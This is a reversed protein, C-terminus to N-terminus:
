LFFTTLVPAIAEPAVNHAQGRLTKREAQPIAKALADASAAMFPMFQASAEGDILFVPMRLSAARAVPVTRDKGLVAADYALTPAVAEMMPWMPSNQMGVLMENPVGVFQMFLTAAEKRNGAGLTEDLRKTYEHWARIGNESDDYPVEYIALRRVQKGLKIAAELALAGGSSFGVLAAGGGADGILAAIDEVERAVAFPQTDTSDGRGRRDYTYVTFKPALLEALKTSFGTARRGTAGDVIVVAPGAGAKDFVIKTGDNSAVTQM